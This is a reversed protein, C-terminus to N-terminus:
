FILFFFTNNEISYKNWYKLIINCRIYIDEKVLIRPFAVLNFLLPFCVSAIHLLVAPSSPLRADCFPHAERMSWPCATRDLFRTFHLVRSLAYFVFIMRTHSSGNRSGDFTRGRASALPYWDILINDTYRCVLGAAKFYRCAWRAKNRQAGNNAANADCTRTCLRWGDQSYCASNFM